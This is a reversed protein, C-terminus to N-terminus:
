ICAAGLHYDDIPLSCCSDLFGFCDNGLDRLFLCRLYLVRSCCRDRISDVVLLDISSGIQHVMPDVVQAQCGPM